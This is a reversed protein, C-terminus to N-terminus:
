LTQHFIDEVVTVYYTWSCLAHLSPEGPPGTHGLFLAPSRFPARVQPWPRHQEYIVPSFKLPVMQNAKQPIGSTAWTEEWLMRRLGVTIWGPRTQNIHIFGQLFCLINGLSCLSQRKGECVDLESRLCPVTRLRECSEM